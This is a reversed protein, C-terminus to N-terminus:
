NGTQIQHYPSVPMAPNMENNGLPLLAKAGEPSDAEAGIAEEIKNM